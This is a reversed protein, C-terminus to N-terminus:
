EKPNYFGKLEELRKKLIQNEGYLKTHIEFVLMAVYLLVTPVTLLYNNIYHLIEDDQM